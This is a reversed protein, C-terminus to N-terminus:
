EEETADQLEPIPCHNIVRSIEIDTSNRNPNFRMAITIAHTREKSDESLKPDLNHVFDIRYTLNYYLPEKTEPDLFPDFAQYARIEIKKYQTEFFKSLNCIGQKKELSASIFAVYKKIEDEGYNEIRKEGYDNEVLKLLGFKIAIAESLKTDLEYSVDEYSKNKFYGELKRIYPVVGLKAIARPDLNLRKFLYESNTDVNNRIYYINGELLEEKPGEMWTNGYGPKEVKEFYKCQVFVMLVIIFAKLNISMALKLKWTYKRM